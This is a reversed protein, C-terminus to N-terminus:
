RARRAPHIADHQFAQQSQRHVTAREKEIGADRSAPGTEFHSEAVARRKVLNSDFVGVAGPAPDHANAKIAYVECGFVDADRQLVIACGMMQTDDQTSASLFSIVALILGSAPFGTGEEM